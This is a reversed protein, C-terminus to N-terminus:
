RMTNEKREWDVTNRPMDDQKPSTMRKFIFAFSCSHSRFLSLKMFQRVFVNYYGFAVKKALSCPRVPNPNSYETKNWLWIWWFLWKPVILSAESKINNACCLRIQALSVATFRSFKNMCTRAPDHWSAARQDSQHSWSFQLDDYM